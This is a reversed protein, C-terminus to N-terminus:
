LLAERQYPTVGKPTYVRLVGSGKLSVFALGPFVIDCKEERKVPFQHAQMDHVHSSDFPPTLTEAAKEAYLEDAKLMKTRHITLGEGAHIIFSTPLGSLFDIRALAGLFLTHNPELKYSRPRIPKRPQVAKLSDADLLNYYHNRNFLGPTDFLRKDEFPIEIFSQTTGPAYFTTIPSAEADIMGNVLTSKGVNTAGVLYVDRGKAHTDIAKLAREVGRKSLASILELGIPRYGEEHLLANLRHKIKAPNVQRPLIDSKNALILLNDGKDLSKYAPVLSGDVDFLDVLLVILANDDIAGLMDLYDERDLSTGIVEGYHRMKYCRQCYLGANEDIAKPTYFPKEPDENQLIGGCGM